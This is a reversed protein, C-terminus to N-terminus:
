PAPKPPPKYFYRVRKAQLPQWVQIPVLPTDTFIAHADPAAARVLRVTPADFRSVPEGAADLAGGLLAEAHGPVAMRESCGIRDLVEDLAAATAADPHADPPLEVWVLMGDEDEVGLAARATAACADNTACGGLLATAGKAPASANVAFMGGQWWLTKPAHVPAAPALLSLVTLDSTQRADRMAAHDVDRGGEFQSPRMTRPDARVVRLALDPPTGATHARVWTTALAYPFGHQPL